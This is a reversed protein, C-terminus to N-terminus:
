SKTKSTHEEIFLRRSEAAEAEKMTSFPTLTWVEVNAIQFNGGRKTKKALTPNAFTSCTFSSGTDMYEKLLIAVGNPENPYPSEGSKWEGGGIGIRDHSCIQVYDDFGTFFYVEVDSELRSEAAMTRSPIFRPSKLRWLFSEGSGFYGTHIRWPTSTFSGFVEGDLTEVALITRHSGRVKSLLTGLSAGQFLLVFKICSSLLAFKNWLYSNCFFRNSFHLAM